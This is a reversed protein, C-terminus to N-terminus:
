PNFTLSPLVANDFDSKFSTADSAIMLSKDRIKFIVMSGQITKSFAGDLRVGNQGGAAVPSSKLEGKKIQNQYSTLVKEYPTTEVIVRLAYPTGNAVTPVVGPHFYAAYSSSSAKATYVSWTKPYNFSVRGLDEPGQFQTFPSKARELFNKEDEVSQAKKADAVALEIKSNVNDRQDVYNSYAWILGGGFAITLIALLVNSIVLPNVVGAEHNKKM